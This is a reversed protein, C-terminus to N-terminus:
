RTTNIDISCTSVVFFLSHHKSPTSPCPFLQPHRPRCVPNKAGSRQATRMSATHKLFRSINGSDTDQSAPNIGVSRQLTCVVTCLFARWELRELRHCGEQWLTNSPEQRGNDEGDYWVMMAGRCEPALPGLFLYIAKGGTLLKSPEAGVMKM